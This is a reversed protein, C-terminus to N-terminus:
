DREEREFFSFGKFMFNDPKLDRHILGLSHLQRIGSLMEMAIRM